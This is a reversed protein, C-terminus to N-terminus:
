ERELTLTVEIRRQGRVPEGQAILRVIRANQLVHRDGEGLRALQVVCYARIAAGQLEVRLEGTRVVAEGVQQEFASIGRSRLAVQVGKERVWRLAGLRISPHTM